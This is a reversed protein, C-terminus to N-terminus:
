LGQGRWMQRKDFGRFFVGDMAGAQISIFKADHASRGRNVTNCYADICLLIDEHYYLLREFVSEKRSVLLGRLKGLGETASAKNVILRQFISSGGPPLLLFGDAILGGSSFEGFPFLFGPARSLAIANPPPLLDLGNMLVPTIIVAGSSAM